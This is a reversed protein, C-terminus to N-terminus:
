PKIEKRVAAARRHADRVARLADPVADSAIKGARAAKCIPEAVSIAARVGGIQAPSMSPELPNLVGVLAKFSACATFIKGEESLEGLGVGGCGSLALALALATLIRKM